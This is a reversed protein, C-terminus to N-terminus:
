LELELFDHCRDLCDICYSNGQRRIKDGATHGFVQRIEPIEEFEDPFHCWFPGGIPNLGGRIRGIWHMPSRSDYFWESLVQPLEKKTVKYIDWIRKTLGAHTVLVDEILLFPKFLELLEPRYAEMIQARGPDYGSCNHREPMLYSLEHNGFIAQAKGSRIADCVLRLCLGHEENSRDFSDM